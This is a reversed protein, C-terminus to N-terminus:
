KSEGKTVEEISELAWDGYDSRYSGDTSLEQWALEEAQEESDAEITITTYSVYRLEVEYTKM